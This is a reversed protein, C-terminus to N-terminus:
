GPTIKIRFDSVHPASRDAATERALAAQWRAMATHSGRAWAAGHGSLWGSRAEGSDSGRRRRVEGRAREDQGRRRGHGSGVTATRARWQQQGSAEAMALEEVTLPVRAGGAAKEEM